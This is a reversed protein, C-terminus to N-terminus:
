CGTVADAVAEAQARRLTIQSELAGLDAQRTGSSRDLTTVTQGIKVQLQRLYNVGGLDNLRTNQPLHVAGEVNKLGGQIQKLLAALDSANGNAYDFQRLGDVATLIQNRGTCARAQTSPSSCGTAGAVALLAM